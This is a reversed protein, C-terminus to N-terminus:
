PTVEVKSCARRGQASACITARGPAKAQFLGDQVLALVAPNRSDWAAPVPGSRTSAQFQRVEGPRMKLQSPNLVLGLDGSPSVVVEARVEFGAYRARITASGASDGADVRGQRVAAVAPNDSTWEADEAPLRDETAPDFLEIQASRGPELTLRGPAAAIGDLARVEVELAAGAAAVIRTTGPRMGLLKGDSTVSVIGPDESRMTASSPTSTQTLPTSVPVGLRPIVLRSATFVAHPQDVSSEGPAPANALRSADAQPRSPDQCAALAVLLAAAVRGRASSDM